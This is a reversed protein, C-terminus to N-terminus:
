TRRLADAITAMAEPVSSDGLVDAVDNLFEADGEQPDRDLAWHAVLYGLRALAMDTSDQGPYLEPM